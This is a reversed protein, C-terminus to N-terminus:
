KPQFAEKRTNVIEASSLGNRMGVIKKLILKSSESEDTHAISKIKDQAPFGNSGIKHMYAYIIGSTM